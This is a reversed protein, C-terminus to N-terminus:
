ICLKLLQILIMKKKMNRLYGNVTLWILAGIDVETTINIFAYSNVHKHINDTHTHTHEENVM